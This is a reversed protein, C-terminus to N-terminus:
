QVVVKRVWFKDGELIHVFYVGSSLSSVDITERYNGGMEADTVTKVLNGNMDRLQVVVKETKEFSTELYIVDQAPNPYVMFKNKAIVTQRITTATDEESSGIMRGDGGKGGIYGKSSSAAKGGSKVYTIAKLDTTSGVSYRMWSQGADDSWYVIGSNAVAWASDGSATISTFNVDVGSLAVNWSNGDYNLIYGNDGVALGTSTGTFYVSNLNANIPSVQTNWSSGDYYLISGNYGVSYAYNGLTFVSNLNYSINSVEPTWNSGNYSYIVGNSGVSFGFTASSFSCGYFTELIGTYQPLWTLGNDTSYVISGNEGTICWYGPQMAVSSAYGSLGTYSINWTLGSDLTILCNGDAMTMIGTTVDSFYVSTLDVTTNTTMQTNPLLQEIRMYNYKSLNIDCGNTDTVTLDVTYYGISSYSYDPNAATSSDGNGFSWDYSAVVSSDGIFSFQVNGDPLYKITESAAFDFEPSSIVLDAGNDTGTTPLDTAVVRIRYGSGNLVSAPVVCAIEGSATDALSGIALPYYFNGSSDSLQATFVNGQNFVGNATFHVTFTDEKCFPVSVISDVAITNTNPVYISITFTADSLDYLSTDTADTVKVLCLTSPTSPINWYYYSSSTNSVLMSWTVGSDTSYELNVTNVFNKTWSVYQYAGEFWNEGGNPYNVTISPVPTAITFLGYSYDNVSSNSADSVRVKCNTSPANPVPWYYFGSSASTSAIIVNWSSGSNTSYELKVNSVASSTWTIYYQYGVYWYEGSNPSNLTITPTPPVITFVNNSQDNVLSPNVTSSVKVLCSTSPTNPVTWYYYSNNSTSSVIVSWNAGNDASYEIKVYNVGASTWTIYYGNTAQLTEGGNPQTLTIYPASITFTNNSVDNYGPNSADSVRVLCTSSPANPVPWNYSGNNTASAVITNWTSGGNTSYELKVNSIGSSNWYIYYASGVVWTEGGNPSTLTISPPPSVISFVADSEDFVNNNYYDSVRVLCTTSPTNPVTWWYSGNNYASTAITTWNSGNDSSYQLKVYSSIGSSTWYIYYGTGATWVQGGNPTTVTISPNIITFVYNSQDNISTNSADSVRVLCNSSPNNPVPWNYYGSSAPTSSVITNWTSGSNVSYEIKVNTVASSSWTINQSTGVGWSEGGNPSNVVISAPAALITFTNNSVDFVNNSYYDKVRVLCNTSPTNPVTWNFYGNNYSGNSIMSWSSGSNISYEIIVYSSTGSSTWYIYQSTLGTWSEGGNPTTVTINPQVISFYSNSADNLGPNSADSVRVLASSTPTNPIPWSYYGTSAPTSSIIVNWSSGGNYSYELKVYNISTSTWYIYQSSGVAFVEGGNPDTLTLSPPPALITFNSDSVDFVGSNYYDAVKVRCTTSPNNPVTWYYSGSNSAGNVVTNWTSGSNISYYITVYGSAGNSTWYIYNSNGATWLQGGNPQTVTIVPTIIEFEYNNMDYISSNTVDSAKVFCNISPTNPVTWYYSGSSASTSTVITTWTSGGNISYELKVNAINSSTWTIYHGTGTGWQNGGAPSTLTITPNSSVISFLSDSVDTLSSTYYDTIRVLCSDSPTNPLTWYYSGYNSAANVINTWTAGANISYDLNVYSSLGASTWYIYQGSGGQWQENGNPSTITVNPIYISFVNDSVDYVSSNGADSVRIKCLTSSVNPVPWYYYGSSAATSSIITTWSNGNNLSYELKVNTINASSWYIYQSTGASWNEGGNPTNVTVTPVPASITFVADSMDKVATDYYDTVKILCNVSPSDPVYWQYYNSNYYPGVILNWTAGNNVSYEVNVSTSSILGTWYIYKYTLGTWSEGGNPTTILLYPQTITFAYSSVDYYSSNTVDSIKVLCNTSPTNPVPTWSYYQNSALVSAAITTWTSGNNTSYEIKLSDVFSSSWSIGYSSGVLISEGGNPASLNIVPTAPNITFVANSSDVVSNNYYDMVKVLCQTSPTNPVYWQINGNNSAGNSIITWSTGNDISYDIRVNSSVGASTWYIYQYSGGTWVEGGNPSTVTFSPVIIKFTNNSVDYISSNAANVVKVRCQNSPTAPVPNWNYYGTSATVGSAILSYSSGNNTSYYISVSDVYQSSWYIYQSSGTNWQEGGNPTSVTITGTGSAAITFNNDSSDVISPTYYDSIRVKCTTSPTNPVNWYYSGNNSAGAVITNWAMGGNTSYELTVYSSTGGYNWYIYRNDGVVYTEGGNPDTVTIYPNVISFTNNSLDYYQTQSVDSVKVLCQSSPTSPIPNWYYYGNSSPTSAIITNWTSGNNISYEIKVNTSNTSNWYIYQSSASVWQEGGNPTTVTISPVAASITFTANSSDGISNSYYDMVKVLCQTSPTNPIYWQFYGNNYSGNTINTWSLGNDISYDIKVYSSIGSSNWYIYQYTNGTWVEGGNPSTVTINTPVIKFVNDSVDFVSPNGVQSIRVKCFNSPTNPITWYYYTTSAPTSGVVLSWTSGNNTSYEIKVSDVYASSWYIYQSSNVAWTEGNNPTSVTISSPAALITFVNDSIDFYSSNYYDSVRVKCNVSPTNPVSWYYYGYNNTGSIITNWTAGNNTSYELNVYSSVSDSTWYIYHNSQGYWSEGGNPSTITYGPGPVAVSDITFTSNSEDFVTSQNNSDVVKVKCNYSPTNPITWLYSGTNTILDNIMNWTSGGNISYYLDVTNVTGTTNWTISYQDGIIWTEGGNPSTLVLPSSQQVGFRINPRNTTATGTTNSCVGSADQYYYVCSASPTVSYYTQANNTYSSNNFCTEVLINSTGDWYFPTSFTHTTWGANETYTQPGWVTTLGTNDFTTSVSSASTNKMRITFNSLPTGKIVAVNFGLSTIDGATGGAALIESALYLMQHKSGWYWNGYPAPWNTNTNTATGTGITITTPATGMSFNANSIDFVSTSDSNVVKVRCLSSSANPIIWSYTGTNSIYDNIMNWTLGTDTSYYLDVNNITGSTSWTINQTSGISWYEGGNPSTITLTAAAANICFASNSQDVISTDSYDSIKVLTSCQPNNPVTWSYSGTNLAAGNILNWTSGYNASYKLIVNSTIGSSTWTINQSTGATWQEGGNPSTLTVSAAPTNITFPANSSDTTSNGGSEVLKVLCNVSSVTPVTWVYSGTNQIGDNYFLWTAGGNTSYYLDMYNIFGTSSWTITDLVGSTLTEGGNPHTITLTASPANICFASNSMDVISTDSFDSIKVLTSCQPNNPVTWAYTGTNGAAGDILTWTSGYNASYKLIVNSTIGVSTWTINHSTGATWQEGGNPSTLTVSAAPPNITFPANSSDAVMSGGAEKVKVLCNASSVSPVTWYYIGTNQYYDDITNWMVGGDTSYYIEVNTITGTNTWRITDTTGSTLTEGGNPKIVTITNQANITFPANSTDAISTGSLYVLCNSSSVNPVFFLAYGANSNIMDNNFSWTTGGNTSVYLDFYTQSGTYNFWVTDVTNGSLIEGGNPYAISLSTPVAITFTANSTDGVTTNNADVIKVLCQTSNVSPITWSYTGTNPVFPAVISFSTGNNTSYYINIDTIGGMSTWTVAHSSGPVWQEGGNPSTVTISQGFVHITAIAFLASFLLLKKMIIINTQQTKNNPIAFIFFDFCLFM